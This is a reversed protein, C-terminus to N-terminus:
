HSIANAPLSLIAKELAKDSPKPAKFQIINGNRDILIYRPLAGIRFQKALAADFAGPLIFANQEQMLDRHEDSFKKWLAPRTDFSIFVFSIKNGYKRMLQQSFPFERLCPQCWTAWFDLLLYQKKSKQLIATFSLSDMNLSYLQDTKGSLSYYRLRNKLGDLFLPDHIALDEPQRGARESYPTRLLAMGALYEKIEPAAHLQDIAALKQPLTAHLSDILLLLAKRFEYIGTLQAPFDPLEIKDRYYAPVEKKKKYNYIRLEFFDILQAAWLYGELLAQERSSLAAADRSLLIAKRERYLRRIASDRQELAAVDAFYTAQELVNFSASTHNLRSLINYFVDRRKDRLSHLRPSGASDTIQVTDGAFLMARNTIGMYGLGVSVPNGNWNQLWQASDAPLLLPFGGEMYYNVNRLSVSKGTANILLVADSNQDAQARATHMLVSLLLLIVLRKNPM